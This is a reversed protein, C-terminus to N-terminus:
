NNPEDDEDEQLIKALDEETIKGDEVLSRLFDKADGGVLSAMTAMNNAKSRREFNEIEEPTIKEEFTHITIGKKQVFKLLLFGLAMSHVFAMRTDDQSLYFMATKMGLIRSLATSLTGGMLPLVQDVFQNDGDKVKSSIYELLQTIIDSMEVKDDDKDRLEIRVTTGKVKNIMIMNFMDDMNPEESQDYMSALEDDDFAESYDDYDSM